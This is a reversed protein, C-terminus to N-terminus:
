LSHCITQTFLKIQGVGKERDITCLPDSNDSAKELFLRGYEGSGELGEPAGPGFM